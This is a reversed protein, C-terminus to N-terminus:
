PRGPMTGLLTHLTYQGFRRPSNLIGMSDALPKSDTAQQQQYRRAGNVVAPVGADFIEEGAWLVPSTGGDVLRLNWGVALPPYARYTTLEVFLLADCGLEMRAKDLLGSPLREQARWAPRGTWSVLQAPTIPQVEFRKLKNLETWLIPELAEAGAQLEAQDSATTVPLVAVRRLTNPLLPDRSHVNAPVYSSGLVIDGPLQV